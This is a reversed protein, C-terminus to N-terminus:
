ENTLSYKTTQPRFTRWSHWYEQYAQVPKLKKGQLEGSACVGNWNWMSNTKTDMMNTASNNLSFTLTDNDVIRSFAHFSVSDPEIVVVLPEAALIDNVIRIKQLDNWDYARSEMGLQVGVIWSKENWSLSDHRTLDSKSKGEDYNKMNDYKEKFVSDPQLIWTDPHNAIWTSLSMQESPIEDLSKGKLPGIIAEGNVQRWWSKTESDEFMANFHDMGVLRFSETKGNIMPSFVRGTRCVTCYTVLILKGNVTDSVQHHYGIIEIPYAKSIGDINVGVILQKTPIKNQEPKSFSITEPVLFMKDALFRFNFLYFVVVYLVILTALAIKVKKTGGKFALFLPLTILLLGILRFWMINNHIFYAIEITESKQSGPFPMIFYVRLIEIIILVVIGAIVLPVRM